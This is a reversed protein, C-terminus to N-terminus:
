NRPRRLTVKPSRIWLRCVRWGGCVCGARDGFPYNRPRRLWGRGVREEDGVSLEPVLAVMGTLFAGEGGVSLEPASAVLGTRRAREGGISLEPASAFLGTQCM